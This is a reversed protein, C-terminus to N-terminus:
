SQLRRARGFRVEIAYVDPSLHSTMWDKNKPTVPGVGLLQLPEIFGNTTAGGGNAADYEETGPILANAANIVDAYNGHIVGPAALAEALDLLEGDAVLKAGRRDPPAVGFRASITVTVQHELDVQDATTTEQRDRAGSWHVAYYIQGAQGPPRGDIQVGCRKGDPDDLVAASRLRAEVAKLLARASM